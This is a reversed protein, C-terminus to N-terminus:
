QCSHSLSAPEPNCSQILAALECNDYGKDALLAPTQTVNSRQGGTLLFREPGDLEGM